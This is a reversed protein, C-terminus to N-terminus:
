HLDFNAACPEPRLQIGVFVDQGTATDEVVDLSMAMMRECFTALVDREGPFAAAVAQYILETAEVSPEYDGRELKESIFLDLRRCLRAYTSDSGRSFPM